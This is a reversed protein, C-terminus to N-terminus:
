LAPVEELESVEIDVGECEHGDMIHATLQWVQRDDRWAVGNLGDLIAKQLNDIDGKTGGHFRFTLTVAVKGDFTTDGAQLRWYTAVLEEWARTAEPTYVHGGRGLRPRGKPVPHGPVFVKM